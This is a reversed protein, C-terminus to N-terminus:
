EIVTGTGLNVWNQGLLDGRWVRSTTSAPSSVDIINYPGVRGATNTKVRTEVWQYTSDRYLNLQYSYPTNQANLIAQFVKLEIKTKDGNQTIRYYANMTTGDTLAAGPNAYMDGANGSILAPNSSTQPTSPCCNGYGVGLTVVANTSIYLNSSTQNNTYYTPITIPTIWYGDDTNTVGGTLLTYGATNDTWSLTNLSDYRWVDQYSTWYGNTNLWSKAQTGGTFSQNFLGNTFEVFSEETLLPSRWFGVYAPVNGPKGNHTGSPDEHAIVYGLDENPTSYFVVGNNAGVVGYDQPTTGAYLNGVKTTGAISGGGTKYAVPTITAM